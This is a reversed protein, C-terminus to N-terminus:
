IIYLISVSNLKYKLSKHPSAFLVYCNTVSLRDITVKSVTEGTLDHSYM